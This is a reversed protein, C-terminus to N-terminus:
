TQAQFDIAKKLWELHQNRKGGANMVHRNSYGFSRDYAVSPLVPAKNTQPKIQTNPKPEKTKPNKKKKFTFRKILVSTKGCYYLTPMYMYFYDGVM